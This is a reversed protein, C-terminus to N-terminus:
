PLKINQFQFPIEKLAQNTKLQIELKWDPLPEESLGIRYRNGSNSYNTSMQKGESNYVLIKHIIEKPDEFYFNLELNPNNNQFYFMNSFFVDAEELTKGIGVEGHLRKILPYYNDTDYVKKVSNYNILILKLSAVDSLLNKHTQNIFNPLILKSKLKESITFYELIGEIKDIATVDRRPAEFGISIENDRQFYGGSPYNSFVNLKTGSNDLIVISDKIKILHEADLKLNEIGVIIHMRNKSDGTHRQENVQIIKLSADQGFGFQISTCTLLCILLIKKM